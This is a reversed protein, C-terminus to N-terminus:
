EDLNDIFSEYTSKTKIQLQVGSVALPNLLNLDDTSTM